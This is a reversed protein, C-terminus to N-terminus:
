TRWTVGFTDKLVLPTLRETGQFVPPQWRFGVQYVQPVTTVQDMWPKNRPLEEIYADIRTM